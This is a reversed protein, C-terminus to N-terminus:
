TLKCMSVVAYLSSYTSYKNIHTKCLCVVFLVLKSTYVFLLCCWSPPTFLCCVVDVQLHLCCCVVDVFLMLKSTYVVVFLM